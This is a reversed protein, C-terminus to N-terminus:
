ILEAMANIEAYLEDDTFGQLDISRSPCSPTCTGCGTCLGPNVEAVQRILNGARDRIDKLNIATFPCVRICNQCGTCSVERVKAVVGEKEM